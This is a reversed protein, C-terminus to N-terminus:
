RCTSTGLTDDLWVCVYSYWAASLGLRVRSYNVSAATDDGRCSDKRDDSASSNHPCRCSGHMVRDHWGRPEGAVRPSVATWGSIVDAVSSSQQM